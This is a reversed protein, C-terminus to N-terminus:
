HKCVLLHIDDATVACQVKILSQTHRSVNIKVAARGNNNMRSALGTDLLNPTRPTLKNDQQTPSLLLFHGTPQVHISLYTFISLCLYICFYM